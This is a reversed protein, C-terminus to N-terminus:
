APLTPNAYNFPTAPLLLASATTSFINQGAENYNARYYLFANVDNTFTRNYSGNHIKWDEVNIWDVLNSSSQITWVQDGSNSISLSLLGTGTQVLGLSSSPTPSQVVARANLFLSMLVTVVVIGANTHTFKSKM